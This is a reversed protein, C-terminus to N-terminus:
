PSGAAHCVPFTAGDTIWPDVRRHGLVRVLAPGAERRSDRILKTWSSGILDSRAPKAFLGRYPALTRLPRDVADRLARISPSIGGPEGMHRGM